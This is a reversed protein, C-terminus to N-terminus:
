YLQQQAFFKGLSCPYAVHDGFNSLMFAAIYTEAHLAESSMTSKIRQVVIDEDIVANEKLSSGAMGMIEGTMTM